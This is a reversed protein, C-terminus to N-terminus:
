ITSNVIQFASLHSKTVTTGGSTTAILVNVVNGGTSAVKFRAQNLPGIIYEKSSKAALITKSLVQKDGQGEASFEGVTSAKITLSTAVTSFSFISIFAGSMDASPFSVKWPTGKTSSKRGAATSNIRLAFPAANRVIKQATVAIAAM